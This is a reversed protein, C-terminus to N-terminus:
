WTAHGQHGECWTVPLVVKVKTGDADVREFRLAHFCVEGDGNRYTYVTTPRGYERHRPFPIDIAASPAPVIPRPTPKAAKKGVEQQSCEAETLPAFISDSLPKRM